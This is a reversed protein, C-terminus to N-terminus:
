SFSIDRIKFVALNAILCSEEPTDSELILPTQDYIIPKASFASSFEEITFFENIPHSHGILVNSKERHKAVMESTAGVRYNPFGIIIISEKGSNNKLFRKIDSFFIEKNELAEKGNSLAIEHAASVMLFCDAKWPFSHDLAEKLTLQL